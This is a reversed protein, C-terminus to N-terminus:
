EMDQVTNETVTSSQCLFINLYCMLVKVRVKKGGGEGALNILM